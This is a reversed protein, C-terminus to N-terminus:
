GKYANILDDNGMPITMASWQANGGACYVSSLKPCNGFAGAGVGKIGIGVSVSTLATCGYFVKVDM